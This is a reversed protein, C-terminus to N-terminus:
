KRKARKKKDYAGGVVNTELRKLSQITEKYGNVFSIYALNSKSLHSRKADELFSKYFKMDKKRIYFTISEPLIRKKTQM